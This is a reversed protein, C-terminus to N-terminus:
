ISRGGAATINNAADVKLQLAQDSPGGTAFPSKGTSGFLLFALLAQM